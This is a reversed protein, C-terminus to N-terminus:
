WTIDDKVFIKQIQIKKCFLSQCGVDLAVAICKWYM